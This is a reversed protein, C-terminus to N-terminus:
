PVRAALRMEVYATDTPPDIKAMKVVIGISDKVTLGSGPPPNATISLLADQAPENQVLFKVAFRGQENAVFNTQSLLRSTGNVPKTVLTLAVAPNSVPDGNPGVVQGQVAGTVFDTPDIITDGICGAVLVLVAVAALRVM